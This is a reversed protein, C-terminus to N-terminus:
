DVSVEGRFGEGAWSLGDDFAVCFGDGDGGGGDDCFGVAILEHGSEGFLVGMVAPFVVGAVRGFLMKFADVCVSDGLIVSFGEGWYFVKDFEAGSLALEFDRQLRSGSESVSDVTM